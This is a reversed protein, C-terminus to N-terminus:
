ESTGRTGIGVLRPWAAGLERGPPVSSAALDWAREKVLGIIKARPGRLPLESVLSGYLFGRITRPRNMEHKELEIEEPTINDLEAAPIDLLAADKASTPRHAGAVFKDPTIYGPPAETWGRGKKWYEIRCGGTPLEILRCVDHDFTTVPGVLIKEHILERLMLRPLAAPGSVLKGRYILM